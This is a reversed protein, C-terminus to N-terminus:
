SGKCIENCRQKVYNWASFSRNEPTPVVFPDEGFIVYGEYLKEATDGDGCTSPLCDDLMAKCVAVAEEYTEYDGYKYRESEDMYHFNDDIYVSFPKDTSTTEM